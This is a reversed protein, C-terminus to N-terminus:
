TRGTVLIAARFRVAAWSSYLANGAPHGLRWSSSRIESLHTTRVRHASPPPPDAWGSAGSAGFAM